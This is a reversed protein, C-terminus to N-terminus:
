TGVLSSSKTIEPIQEITHSVWRIFPHVMESSVYQLWSLFLFLHRGPGGGGATSAAVEADVTALFSRVIVTFPTM